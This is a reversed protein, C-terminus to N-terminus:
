TSRRKSSTVTTELKFQHRGCEALFAAPVQVELFNNAMFAVVYFNATASFGAARLEEFVTPSQKALWRAARLLRKELIDSFLEISEGVEDFSVECLSIRPFGGDGEFRTGDGKEFSLKQKFPMRKNQPHKVHVSVIIHKITTEETKAIEQLLRKAEGLYSKALPSCTVTMAAVQELSQEVLTRLESDMDLSGYEAAKAILQDAISNEFGALDQPFPRQFLRKARASFDLRDLKVSEPALEADVYITVEHAGFLEGGPLDSADYTLSSGSDWIRVMQPLLRGVVSEDDLRPKRKEHIRISSDFDGALLQAGAYDRLAAEHEQMWRLRRGAEEIRDSPINTEEAEWDIRVPVGAIVVTGQWWGGDRNIYELTGLASDQM